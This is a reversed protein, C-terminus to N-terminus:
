PTLNRVVYTCLLLIPRSLALISLRIHIRSHVSDFNADEASSKHKSLTELLLMSSSPVLVSSPLTSLKITTASEMMTQRSCETFQAKLFKSTPDRVHNCWFKLEHTTKLANSM